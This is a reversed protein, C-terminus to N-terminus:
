FLLDTVAGHAHDATDPATHHGLGDVLGTVPSTVDGAVDLVGQTADHSVAGLPDSGTVSGVVSSVAPDLHTVDLDAVDHLGITSTVGTVVSATGDLTAGADVGTSAILGDADGVVTTTVSTATSVGADLGLGPDHVASLAGDVPATVSTSVPADVTAAHELGVGVAPTGALLGDTSVMFAGAGAYAVDPAAHAGPTLNGTMAQLQAVAASVDADAVGTTLDHVGLPATVAAVDSLPAYDVVLPIVEQVDVATVDSLGADALVGEPDLEFASRAAPDYILNLVFDQLTPSSDM